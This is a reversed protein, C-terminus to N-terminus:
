AGHEKGLSAAVAAADRRRLRLADAEEAAKMRLMDDADYTPPKPKPNARGFM